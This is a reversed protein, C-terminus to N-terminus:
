NEKRHSQGWKGCEKCVFRRYMCVSTTIYGRYHLDLSGCEACSPRAKGSIVGMHFPLDRTKVYPIMYKYVEENLDTDGKNYHLMEKLAQRDNVMCRKWLDYGAHKVKRGVKFYQGLYDLKHSNLNFNRRSMLLTDIVKLLPMPKLKHYALRGNLWPMDFKQGNHAIIHDYDSIYTIFEKLMAKDCMNKDWTLEKYVKKGFDKIVITIVRREQIISEPGVSLKYGSRWFLGVNPSTEIDVIAIRISM